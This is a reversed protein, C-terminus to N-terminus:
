IFDERINKFRHTIKNDIEYALKDDPSPADVFEWMLTTDPLLCKDILSASKVIDAFPLQSYKAQGKSIMEEYASRLIGLEYEHTTNVVADAYKRYKTIYKDEADCVAGWNELTHKVSYQRRGIDRVIRRFLRIDVSNMIRKDLKFNNIANVYIKYYKTTGINDILLPNLAHLGEFIIITNYKLQVEKAEHNNIGTIFDYEPFMAKGEKFLKTFCQKMLDLNLAKPSDFDKTGDPLLPTHKRDIFFDDMSITIVHHGRKELIEKLLRASTTKGACSPGALLVMNTDRKELIREVLAFLQGRYRSETDLIVKRTDNDLEANIKKISILKRLM